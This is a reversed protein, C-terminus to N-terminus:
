QLKQQQTTLRHEKELFESQQQEQVASQEEYFKRRQIEFSEEMEYRRRAQEQREVGLRWFQEWWNISKRKNISDGNNKNM